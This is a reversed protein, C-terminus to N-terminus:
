DSEVFVMILMSKESVMLGHIITDRRNDVPEQM